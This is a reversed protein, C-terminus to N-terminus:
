DDIMTTVFKPALAVLLQWIDVLFLSLQLVPSPGFNQYPISWPFSTGLNSMLSLLM